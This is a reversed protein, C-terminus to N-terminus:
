PSDSEERMKKLMERDVEVKQREVGPMAGLGGMALIMSVVHLEKKDFELAEVVGDIIELRDRFSVHRLQTEVSIGQGPLAEIKITGEM